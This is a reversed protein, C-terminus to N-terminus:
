LSITGKTSHKRNALYHVVAYVVGLAGGIALYKSLPSDLVKPM